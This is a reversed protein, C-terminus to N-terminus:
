TTLIGVQQPQQQQVVVVNSTQQQAFQQPPPQQYQQPAPQYGPQPAPPQYQGQPYQSYGPPQQYAMILDPHNPDQIFAFLCSLLFLCLYVCM